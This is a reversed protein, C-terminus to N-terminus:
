FDVKAGVRFWRGVFGQGAWAPNFQYIGYAAAPDYPAKANLVNLMNVYLTLKEGIRYTATADVDIFHRTSCKIPTSGDRYTVM